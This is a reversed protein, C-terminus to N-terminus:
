IGNTNEQVTRVLLLPVVTTQPPRQGLEVFV